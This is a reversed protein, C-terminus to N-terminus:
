GGIKFGGKASGGIGAEIKGGAKAGAKASASASKKTEVKVNSKASAGARANADAKATVKPPRVEARADLKGAAALKASAQFSHVAAVAVKGGAAVRIVLPKAALDLGGELKAHYSASPPDWKLDLEGGAGVDLDIDLDGAAHAKGSADFAYAHVAGAEAVLELSYAGAVLVQGGHSAEAALAIEALAGTSAKGDVTLEIEVPGPVIEVDGEVQGVFRALEADWKLAVDAKADGKAALKAALVLKGPDAVLEGKADMIVAEIRGRVFALIEVRYEGVVVITGGIRPQIDAAVDAAADANADAKAAVDAKAEAKGNADVAAAANAQGSAAAPAEDKKDCGVSLALVLAGCAVPSCRMTVELGRDYDSCRARLGDDGPNEHFRPRQFKEHAWQLPLHIHRRRVRQM